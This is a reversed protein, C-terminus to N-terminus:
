LALGIQTLFTMTANFHALTNENTKKVAILLLSLTVLDTERDTQIDPSM